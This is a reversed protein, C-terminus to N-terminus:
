KKKGLFSTFLGGFLGIGFLFEFAYQAKLTDEMESLGIDGNAISAKLSFYIIFFVFSAIFCILPIFKKM